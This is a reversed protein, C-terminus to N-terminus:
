AAMAMASDRRSRIACCWSSAHRIVAPDVRREGDLRNRESVGVPDLLEVRRAFEISISGPRLNDQLARCPQWHHANLKEACRVLLPDNLQFILKM